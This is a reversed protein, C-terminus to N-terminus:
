DHLRPPISNSLLCWGNILEDNYQIPENAKIEEKTQTIPTSVYYTFREYGLSVLIDNLDYDSICGEPFTNFIFHLFQSSTLRVNALIPSSPTFNAEIFDKIQEKYNYM